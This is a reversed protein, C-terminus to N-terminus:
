SPLYEVVILDVMTKVAIGGEANTVALRVSYVGEEMFTFEPHQEHSEVVGDAQFDWSWAVPDGESTDTFQVTMPAMGETRSATFSPTPATRVINVPPLQGPPLRPTAQEQLSPRPLAGGDGVSRLRVGPASTATNRNIFPRSM